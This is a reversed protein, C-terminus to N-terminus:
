GGGVAPVYAIRDGDEIKEELEAQIGNRMIVKVEDLPLKLQARLEELTTGDPLEIAKAEGIAYGPMYRRLTAFVRVDVKIIKM